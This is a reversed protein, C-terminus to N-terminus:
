QANAVLAPNADLLSRVYDSALYRAFADYEGGKPCVHYLIDGDRENNVTRPMTLLFILDGSIVKAARREIESKLHLM